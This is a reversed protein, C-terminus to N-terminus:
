EYNKIMYYQPKKSGSFYGEKTIAIGNSNYYYIFKVFLRSVKKFTIEVKINNDKSEIKKAITIYPKIKKLRMGMYEIKKQNPNKIFNQLQIEPFLVLELNHLKIKKNPTFLYNNLLFYQNTKKDEIFDFSLTALNVNTKVIIKYEKKPNSFEFIFGDPITSFLEVNEKKNASFYAIDNSYTSISFILIFFLIINIM